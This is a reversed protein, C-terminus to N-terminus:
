QQALLPILKDGWFEGSIMGSSMGGRAFRKVHVTANKELSAGTLAAFACSVVAVLDEPRRPIEASCLAQRMEMWLFLDGRLGWQTPAPDFLDSMVAWEEEIAIM